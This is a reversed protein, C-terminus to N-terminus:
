VSHIVQVHVESGRLLSKSSEGHTWDTSTARKTPSGRLDQEKHKSRNINQNTKPNTQYKYTETVQTINFRCILM